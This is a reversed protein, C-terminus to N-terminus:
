LVTLADILDGNSAGNVKRGSPTILSDDTTVVVSEIVDDRIGLTCVRGAFKQGRISGAVRMGIEITGAKVTM